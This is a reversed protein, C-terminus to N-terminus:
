FCIVLSMLSNAQSHDSSLVKLIHFTSVDFSKASITANLIKYNDSSSLSMNGLLLTQTLVNSYNFNCLTSLLADKM